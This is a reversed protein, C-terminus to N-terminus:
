FYNYNAEFVAIKLDTGPKAESSKEEIKSFSKNKGLSNKFEEITDFSDAEIRINCKGGGDLNSNYKFEVIEIPINKPVSKSIDALALLAGPKSLKSSFDNIANTFQVSKQKLKKMTKKHIRTFSYDGKNLQKKTQPFVQILEKKYISDRKEIQNQYTLYKYLYSGIFVIFLVTIGKTLATGIKFIKSYDQVYAYEGRRLNIQSQGSVSTVARLGIAVGQTIISTKESLNEALKLTTNKINTKHVKLDLEQELFLDLNKIVSTGGSIFLAEVPRKEWTKFAYLTRGLERAISHSASSINHAIKQEFESLNSLDDEKKYALFSVKHKIRQADGFSLQFDRAIFDTLYRGALNISRFMKLINNQVLCISTKEHGIDVIGYCKNEEMPLYPSLNYLTLSDIDIVKPDIDIKKLNELFGGLFTKRTLVVLVLTKNDFKGIIQQDIIMNDLSFPVSDEIEALVAAEIKNPDSFGFPILRSSIYQGPMASVIRDAVINNEAFLQALCNSIVINSPIDDIKPVVNEYYNSIEYSNFHNLVEVAKISYSGIDLAIVKQM